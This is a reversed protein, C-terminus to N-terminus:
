RLRKGRRRGGGKPTAAFVAELSKATSARTLWLELLGSDSCADIRAESTVGFRGTLALMLVRRLARVEGEALGEAKGRSLGESLGEAKGEVLGEAKGLALGEAKGLALGEAKGLAVGEMLGQAKGQTSALIYANKADQQAILAREYAEREAKSFAATQSALLARKPGAGHLSKPPAELSAANRFLWVWEEVANKPVSERSLKPLEVFVYQIQSLGNRGGKEKMRWRSLLPVDPKGKKAPWLVFDCITVAIVDNLESYQAGVDLQSVYAKSSNYVVRKEFGAVNLVQMEVVFTRGSKEQCKVDVASFKMEAIQPRQEERLHVVDIIKGKGSTELLDNLLAILLDKNAETGFLRKFGFDTKPDAYISRM